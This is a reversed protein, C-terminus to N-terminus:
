SEDTLRKNILLVWDELVHEYFDSKDEQIGCLLVWKSTLWSIM